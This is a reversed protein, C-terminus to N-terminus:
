GHLQKEVKSIATFARPPLGLWSRMWTKALLTANAKLSTMNNTITIPKFCSYLSGDKEGIAVLTCQLGIPAFAYPFNSGNSYVHVM